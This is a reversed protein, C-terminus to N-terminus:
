VSRSARAPSRSRAAFLTRLTGREGARCCRSSSTTSRDLLATFFPWAEYMERLAALGRADGETFRELASGLGYWAPLLHRSQTWAFVWPIARLQKLESTARRRSPRSGIRMHEILDIPTAQWFYENMEPTRYILGQYAHQSARALDDMRAEWTALRVPDRAWPAPLVHTAIVASTLQELNREAIVVNSYKLSIVEGQETIRLKAGHAAFPQARLTRYSQGGGRDISGGKGHFFRLRIGRRDALQSIEKQARYLYWNAALYGGDKNSDSYGLMVEQLDGRRSLHARYSADSWLADLIRAAGELDEITEFLPVIDLRECRAKRALGLVELLDAASTTMSLIFRHAAGSGYRRQLEAVVRLEALLEDRANTVKDRHDRVDLELLHFGFAEVQRILRELHGHAARHAKQKLLGAQIRTLDRVLEEPKRYGVELKRQVEVLAHRFRESKQYRDDAGAHGVHLPARPSAHSLEDLLKGCEAKYFAMAREHQVKGTELTIEPTVFPNGDRDGGVWSAFTLFSRTRRVGPYAAALERDFTVYFAGVTDLITREVFFLANKLEDLPSVKHERVEETQWLAELVEDPADFHEALRFIHNLTTRRKAETPHATLVAEVELVDLCAQLQADTVGNEKLEAFLQRVSQVPAAHAALHRVRAREECLNVVQFFLSFAHAVLYADGDRLAGVRKRVEASLSEGGGDERIARTLRRLGEVHEFLADGAQERVMAGLQTTIRRVEARLQEDM